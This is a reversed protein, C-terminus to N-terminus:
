ASVNVDATAEHISCYTSHNCNFGVVNSNLKVTPWLRVIDLPYPALEHKEFVHIDM